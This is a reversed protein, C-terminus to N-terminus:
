TSLVNCSFNNQVKPNVDFAMFMFNFVKKYDVKSKM